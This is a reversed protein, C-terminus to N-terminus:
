NIGWLLMGPPFLSNSSFVAFTFIYFISMAHSSPMGPDSRSTPFPREQNLINKLVVSLVSNIISGVVAWITEADHRGLILAGFLGAM